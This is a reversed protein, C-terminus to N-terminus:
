HYTLTPQHPSKRSARPLHASVRLSDKPNRAPLALALFLWQHHLRPPNVALLTRVHHHTHSRLQLPIIDNRSAVDRFSPVHVKAFVVQHRRTPNAIWAPVALQMALMLENLLVYTSLIHMSPLSYM